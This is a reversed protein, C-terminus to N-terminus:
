EQTRDGRGNEPEEDQIVKKNNKITENKKNKLIVLKGKESNTIIVEFDESLKDFIHSSSLNAPLLFEVEESKFCDNLQKNTM